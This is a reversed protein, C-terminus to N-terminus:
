SGALSRETAGLAFVIETITGSLTVIRSTNIAEATTARATVSSWLLIAAAILQMHKMAEVKTRATALM